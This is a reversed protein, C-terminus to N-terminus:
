GTRSMRGPGSPENGSPMVSSFPLSINEAVVPSEPSARPMQVVFPVAVPVVGIPPSVRPWGTKM